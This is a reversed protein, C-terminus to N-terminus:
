SRINIVVTLGQNNEYTRMIKRIIKEYSCWIFSMRNRASFVKYCMELPFWVKSCSVKGQRLEPMEGTTITYNFVVNIGAEDTWSYGHFPVILILLIIYQFLTTAVLKLFLKKLHCAHLCLHFWISLFQICFHWILKYRHKRKNLAM